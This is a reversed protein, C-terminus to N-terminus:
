ALSTLATALQIKRARWLEDDTPDEDHDEMAVILADWVNNDMEDALAGMWDPMESSAAMM